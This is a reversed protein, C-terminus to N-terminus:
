PTGGPSYARGTLKIWEGGLASSSPNLRLGEALVRGADQTRRSAVLVQVLTLRVDERAPDIAGACALAEEAPRLRGARAELMGIAALTTVTRRGRREAERFAALAGREDGTRLIAAGLRECAAASDTERAIRGYEEVLAALGAGEGPSRMRVDAPALWQEDLGPLLGDAPRGPPPATSIRHVVFRDTEAWVPVARSTWFARWRGAAAEDFRYTGYTAQLDFGGGPQYLTLGIGLQRFRKAIGGPDRSERSFREILSTDYFSQLVAAPGFFLGLGTNTLVLVRVGGRNADLWRGAELTHGREPFGRALYHDPTELGFVVPVPNVVSHQRGPAILLTVGLLGAAGWAAARGAIGSRALAALGQACAIAAAPWVPVSYRVLRPGLSWLVLYGAVLAAVPRVEHWAVLLAVPFLWLFWGATGAEPDMVGVTHVTVNWPRALLAGAGPIAVPELALRDFDRVYRSINEPGWWLSPFVGSLFPM